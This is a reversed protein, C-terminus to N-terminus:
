CQAGTGAAAAVKTVPAGNTVSPKQWQLEISSSTVKGRPAIGLQSPPEPEAPRTKFSVIPSHPSPGM